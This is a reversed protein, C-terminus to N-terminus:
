NGRGFAGGGGGTGAGGGAGGFGGGTNRNNNQNQNSRNRLASNQQQANRNNRNANQQNEFLNRLVEQVQIPDANDLDYVFVKQKRSPDSDLQLIMDSIQPMLEKAASVIVSGTRADPVAMVTGMKKARESGATAATQGGGGRGGFRFQQGRNQQANSQTQDPFLGNLVSAMEVPDSYRLRFVRLETIDQVNTDLQAVLDAISPMIDDPANVILSNSHEDAVAVVRSAAERTAAGTNANNGGGGQGGRGFPFGGPFGGRGGGRNNTEPAPILEKIVDALEKADAYNLAFVRLTTASTSSTDIARIIEAMRRINVQTDTLILANGAENATLTSEAPLLPQLNQILQAANVYRIPLIQTVLADSRPIDAPNSGSRVPVDRKLATEKSVITLIRGNRLAAYGNRALATDLLGLAEDRTVPQNSWLDVKGSIETELVIIFGAAESLYNLVMELPAGRLNLRLLRNEDPNPPTASTGTAAPPETAVDDQGRGAVPLLLVALLGLLHPIRLPTNM